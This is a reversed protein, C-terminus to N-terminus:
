LSKIFDLTKQQRLISAILYRSQEMQKKEEESKAAGIARNIEEEAVTIKENEAITQLALELRLDADAKREYEARFDQPTRGTSSLYQDLSLGLRKIEDLSQSLLRDAERDVLVKPITVKVSDLLANIIDEFKPGESEKGPIVIKSKATIVKIKDKYDALDVIPSEATEAEFIWDKGEELEGHGEQSHVHIRPDMIPKLSHETVAKTYTKPLHRKLVEERVSAKNITDEVLKKPAKGKRFGPVKALNVFELVVSDWTPKIDKWPITVTLKITGDPTKNILSAM